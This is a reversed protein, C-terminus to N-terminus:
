DAKTLRNGVQEVPQHPNIRIVNLRVRSDCTEQNLMGDINPDPRLAQFFNPGHAFQQLRAHPLQAAPM